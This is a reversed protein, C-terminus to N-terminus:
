MRCLVLNSVRLLVSLVRTTTTQSTALVMTLLGEVYSANNRDRIRNDVGAQVFEIQMSDIRLWQCIPFPLRPQDDVTCVTGVHVLIMGTVETFDTHAVEVSELVVVPLGHDYTVGQGARM